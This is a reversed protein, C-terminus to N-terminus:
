LFRYLSWHLPSSSSFPRSFQILLQVALVLVLMFGSPLCAACSFLQLFLPIPLIKLLINPHLIWLYMMRTLTKMLFQKNKASEKQLHGQGLCIISALKHTFRRERSPYEM